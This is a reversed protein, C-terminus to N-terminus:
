TNGAELDDKIFARNQAAEAIEPNLRHQLRLPAAAPNGQRSGKEFKVQTTPPRNRWRGYTGTM